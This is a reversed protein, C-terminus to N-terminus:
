VNQVKVTENDIMLTKQKELPLSRNSQTESVACSFLHLLLAPLSCVHETIDGRSSSQLHSELGLGTILTM